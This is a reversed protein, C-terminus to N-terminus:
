LYLWCPVGMCVPLIPQGSPHVPQAPMNLLDVSSVRDMSQCTCLVAVNGAASAAGDDAHMSAESLTDLHLAKVEESTSELKGVRVVKALRCLYAHISCLCWLSNRTTKM